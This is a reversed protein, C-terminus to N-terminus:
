IKFLFVADVTLFDNIVTDMGTQVEDLRRTVRSYIKMSTACMDTVFTDRLRFGRSISNMRRSCVLTLRMGTMALASVRVSSSTASNLALTLQRVDSQRYVRKSVHARSEQLYRKDCYGCRGLAWKRFRLRPSWLLLPPFRPCFNRKGHDTRILDDHCWVATVNAPPRVWPTDDLDIVLLMTVKDLKALHKYSRVHLFKPLIGIINQVLVPSCLFEEAHTHCLVRTDELLDLIPSKNEKKGEQVKKREDHYGPRACAPLVHAGRLWARWSPPRSSSPKGASPALFPIWASVIPLLAIHLADPSSPTEPSVVTPGRPSSAFTRPQCALSVRSPRYSVTWNKCAGVHSM